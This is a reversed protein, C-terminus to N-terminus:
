KGSYDLLQRVSLSCARCHARHGANALAPGQLASRIVLDAAKLAICEPL